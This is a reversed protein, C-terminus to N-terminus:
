FGSGKLSSYLGLSLIEAEPDYLKIVLDLSKTEKDEDERERMRRVKRAPDKKGLEKEKEKEREKRTGQVRNSLMREIKSIRLLSGGHLQMWIQLCNLYRKGPVWPTPRLGGIFIMEM